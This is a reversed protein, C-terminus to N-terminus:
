RAGAILGKGFDVLDKEMAEDKKWRTKQLRAMAATSPKRSFGLNKDPSLGEEAAVSMVFDHWQGRSLQAIQLLSLSTSMRAQAKIIGAAVVVSKMIEIIAAPDRRKDGQITTFVDFLDPIGLLDDDDPPHSIIGQGKKMLSSRIGLMYNGQSVYLLRHFLNREIISAENLSGERKSVDFLGTKYEYLLGTLHFLRQAVASHLANNARRDAYTVATQTNAARSIDIALEDRSESAVRGLSIVKLVVEKGQFVREVEDPDLELYTQALTFATQGGNIIQPDYISVSAINTKGTRESYSCKEAIMTIGNNFLAFEDFNNATISDKIASNTGQREFELYSRPNYRLLSNRYTVVLKAIEITPVMFLSLRSPGFRTQIEAEVRQGEKKKETNIAFNARDARIEESALSPYLLEDYTRAFDYVEIDYDPYIKAIIEKSSKDLNALIVVKFEYESIDTIESLKEQFRRIHGNFPDGGKAEPYGKVIEDIHLKTIEDNSLTKNAFGGATSRFKSQIL